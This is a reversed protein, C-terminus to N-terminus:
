PATISGSAHPPPEDPRPRGPPPLPDPRALPDPSLQVRDAPTLASLSRRLTTVVTSVVLTVAESAGDEEHRRLAVTLDALARDASLRRGPEDDALTAERATAALERLAAALPARLDLPLVDVTTGWPADASLDELDDVLLVARDLARFEDARRAIEGPRHRARRNARAADQMANIERRALTVADTLAAHDPLEVGDGRAPDIGDALGDLHDAASRRLRAIARDVGEVPMSPLAANLVITFAAGLLFLGAYAMGYGVEDGQGLLLTFMGAIPVYSRSEGLWPLGALLMGVAVVVAIALLGAGLLQDAVVGMLAGLMIAVVTRVGESASRAVAPYATSVAGLPAYFSYTAADGPLNRAVVWSATAAVAAKVAMDTRPHLLLRRLTSRTPPVGWHFPGVM